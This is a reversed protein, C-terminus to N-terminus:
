GYTDTGPYWVGITCKFNNTKITFVIV